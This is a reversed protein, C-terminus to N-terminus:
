FRFRVGGGLQVGGVSLDQTEESMPEDVSVTGRSFRAFGGLGFARTFFYSVDGGVHVGWGSGEVEIDEFSTITVINTRSGPFATQRYAIDRVMDAKHRFFTPGGFLRVRANETHLAVFMMQFNASGETRTLNQETTGSATTSANFVFPHPITVGLGVPDEHATGTFNLGLGVRPTFMYGGGFDFEAGRSPEPYVVAFAAQEQFLRTAFTFTASGAGSSALGFNVDIWVAQDQASAPLTPLLVALASTLLLTRTVTKLFTVEM